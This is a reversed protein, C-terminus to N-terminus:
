LTELETLIKTLQQKISSIKLCREYLENMEEHGTDEFDKIRSEREEDTCYRHGIGMQAEILQKHQLRLLELTM